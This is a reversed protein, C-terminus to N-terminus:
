GRGGVADLAGLIADEATHGRAAGVCKGTSRKEATATWHQREGTESYGGVLSVALKVVVVGRASAEALLDEM